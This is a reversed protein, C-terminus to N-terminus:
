IGDEGVPPIVRGFKNFEEQFTKGNRGVYFLAIEHPMVFKAPCVYIGEEENTKGKEEEIKGEDSPKEILDEVIFWSKKRPPPPKNEV